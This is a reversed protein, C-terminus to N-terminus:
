PEPLLQIPQGREASEAVALTVALTALADAGPVRPEAVGRIVQCFHAMQATITEGRAVPLPEKELEYQWGAPRGAGYRWLELRPFGLSAETGLFHYCNEGVYPMDPNDGSGAEWNWPAPTADTVLVTGLAGGAFRLTLAASDEVGFGRAAHGAEAYVSEIEGCIHCLNDIDHILNILIPGGGPQRRWDIDFYSAPKLTAWIASVATLRGLAGGQVIERATEVAPNFRRHHGVMLRVGNREAAAVLEAGSAVDAAIPKEVLLHIGRAACAIGIPAHLNTPAAIVVGDPREKEIMAEFDAYYATGLDGALAAAAADPDALAVLRCGPEALATRAHRAGILGAGIVAIRLPAM